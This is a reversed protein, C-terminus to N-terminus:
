SFLISSLRRRGSLTAEDKPGYADFFEVLQKRAAEDNWNRDYEVIRLLAEVAGDREGRANLALALDFRAQHDKPNADLKAEIESIDGLDEAKEALSLAAEAATFDTDSRGDPRVLALTQRAQELDGADIYCRALGAVAAPNGPEEQAAQAFAQAAGPLDGTRYAERGTEIMEEAPSPGTDGILGAIFTKIQSEPLAGMFGDVPQGNKFAYVAPVEQIRLQQAVEPYDDINMRALKVAGRAARVVAELATNLQQCAPHRPTHFSVIVPLDRSAALVDQTFTQTTTDTILSGAGGTAAAGNGIIPEM